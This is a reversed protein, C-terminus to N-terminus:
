SVIAKSEATATVDTFRKLPAIYKLIYTNASRQVTAVVTGDPDVRFSSRVLKTSTEPGLTALAAAYTKQIDKTQNWVPAAAVAAASAQDQAGLQSTMISFTDFFLVGAVALGITLKALWLVISSGRDDGM